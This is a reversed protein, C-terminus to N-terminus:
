LTAPFADGLIIRWNPIQNTPALAVTKNIATAANDFQAGIAASEWIPLVIPASLSGPIVIPRALDGKALRFFGELLLPYTVPNGQSKHYTVLLPINQAALIELAFSKLQPFHVRKIAKLMKIAPVLYGDSRTNSDTIYQADFDYDALIWGGAGNPVWYARGVPSHPVGFPDHGVNDLYAPVLEVKVGDAFHLSVTPADAVPNKLVYRDSAHVKGLVHQIAAPSTIGGTSVWGRFEDLVVLIDIDFAEGVRPQIRTKRQLSGILHSNPALQSRLAAHRTEIIGSFTTNPELNQRLKTFHDNV